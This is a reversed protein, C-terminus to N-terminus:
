IDDEPEDFLDDFEDQDSQRFNEKRYAEDNLVFARFYPDNIDNAPFRVGFTQPWRKTEWAHVIRTVQDAAILGADNASDLSILGCNYQLRQRTLQGEQVLLGNQRLWQAKREKAAKTQDISGDEKRGQAKIMEELMFDNHVLWVGDETIQAVVAEDGARRDGIDELLTVSSGKSLTHGCKKLWLLGCDRIGTLWSYVRLQKDYAALGPREPFDLASTKIDTLVTRMPGYEAKWQVKTLMPHDPAVYSIVDIKGMFELEGFKPDGEFLTKSYERQFVSAGGLPIPLSPQKISYLKILEIGSKNLTEWDKETKTFQLNEDKHRAWLDIFKAVAGEGLNDHHHQIAEEIARGFKFAAKDDRPKWGQVRKLYYSYPCRDFELGASYSHRRHAEGRTNQYLIASM